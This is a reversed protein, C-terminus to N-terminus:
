SRRSGFVNRGGGEFTTVMALQTGLPRRAMVQYATSARSHQSLVSVCLRLVLGCVIAAVRGVSSGAITIIRQITVSPSSFLEKACSTSLYLLFVSPNFSLQICNFVDPILM